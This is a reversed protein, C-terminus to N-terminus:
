EVEGAVTIITKGRAHGKALQRLAEPTESLAYRSEIAPKIHGSAVLGILYALDKPDSKFSLMRLEKGGASMLPRLIMAKLLQSMKGGVIVCIGKPNLVHRYSALPYSGNVALIIDYREEKKTFDEFAYDIVHDAGLSRALSVNHAGCVATVHAGFHKALQVAFTGVGGGAGCVLVRKGSEVGGRDRLAKLATCAAVPLAAAQEFSVSAPKRVLANEPACVYEAFGGLGCDSIDGFVADGPAFMRVDKGVSEVRGAIDAGYIRRKPVMGMRMMRYDLANASAAHIRVLVENDQPIPKQVDRYILSGKGASKEFVVAKM